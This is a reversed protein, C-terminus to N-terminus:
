TTRYDKISMVENLMAASIPANNQASHQMAVILANLHDIAPRLDPTPTVESPQPAEQPPQQKAM